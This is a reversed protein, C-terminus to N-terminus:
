RTVSSFCALMNEGTLVTYKQQYGKSESGSEIRLVPAAHTMVYWYCLVLLSLMEQDDHRLPDLVMVAFVFQGIVWSTIM